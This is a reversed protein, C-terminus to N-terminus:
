FARLRLEEDIRDLSYYKHRIITTLILYFECDYLACLLELNEIYVKGRKRREKGRQFGLLTALNKSDTSKQSGM